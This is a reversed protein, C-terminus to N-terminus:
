KMFHETIKEFCEVYDAKYRKEDARREFNPKGFTVSYKARTENHREAAGEVISKILKKNLIEAHDVNLSLELGGIKLCEIEYTYYLFEIGLKKILMEKEKSQYEAGRGSYNLSFLSNYGMENLIQSKIEKVKNIEDPTAKDFEGDSDCVMAVKGFYIYGAKSLRNLSSEFAGRFKISLENQFEYLYYKDVGISNAVIPINDRLQTWRDIDNVVRFEDLFYKITKNVTLENRILTIILADIHEGYVNHNNGGRTEIYPKPTDYIDRIVFKRSKKGKENLPQELEIYRGLNNLQRKRARTDTGKNDLDYYTCLAGYDKFEMDITSEKINISYKEM